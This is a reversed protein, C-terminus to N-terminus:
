NPTIPLLGVTRAIADYAPLLDREEPRRGIRCLLCGTGTCHVYGRYAPSELYHLRVPLADTTFPLLLAENGDLRVAALPTANRPSEADWRALADSPKNPPPQDPPPTSSSDNM